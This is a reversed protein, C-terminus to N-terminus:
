AAALIGKLHERSELLADLPRDPAYIELVLAGEFDNMFSALPAFDAVGEGLPLHESIGKARGDNLHIHVIRDRLVAFEEALGAGIFAHGTDLNAKIDDRGTAEILDALIDVTPAASHHVHVENEITLVLGAEATLDAWRVYTEIARKRADRALEDRDFRETAFPVGKRELDFLGEVVGPHIGVVPSKLRRALDVLRKFIEDDRTRQDPLATAPNLDDPAHVTYALGEAAGIAALEAVTAAAVTTPWFGLPDCELEIGAFGERASLRAAAVTDMIPFLTWNCTFIRPGTM